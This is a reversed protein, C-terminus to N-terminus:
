IAWRVLASGWTLGAGFGVLLALNDRELRGDRMAEWLAIPISAASTNGYRAVNSFVRERPMAFRRAAGEIIRENAQHPVLLDIQEVGMGAKALCREATYPLIRTAFQYVERGRMALLHEKAAIREATVPFRSGGAPLRLISPDEGNAGLDHALMGEGPGGATVVAAGGGDGFLICTGRDTWDTIRSLIDAGIVLVNRAAGSKVLGDAVVLGYIWGTCGASLDFAFGQGGLRHQVACATAPWPHDGTITALVVADIDAATLGASELANQAAEIALDSTCQDDAAIHRERIGTRQVIWEDTTDVMTALDDNTLVREPIAVGLGVIKSSGISM